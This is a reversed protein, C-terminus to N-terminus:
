HRALCHLFGCRRYAMSAPPLGLQWLRHDAKRLYENITKITFADNRLQPHTGAKIRLFEYNQLMINIVQQVHRCGCYFSIAWCLVAIGLPLKAWSITADQTQTTAFGIAAGSAALLFYTYKNSADRHVKFLTERSDSL